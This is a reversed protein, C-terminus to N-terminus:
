ALRAWSGLAVSLTLLRNKPIFRPTLSLTALFVKPRFGTTSDAFASGLKLVNDSTCCFGKATMDNPCRKAQPALWVHDSFVWNKGQSFWKAVTNVFYPMPKSSWFVLVVYSGISSRWCCMELHCHPQNPGTNLKVQRSLQLSTRGNSCWSGFIVVM